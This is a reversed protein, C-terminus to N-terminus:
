VQTDPALFISTRSHGQGKSSLVARDEAREAGGRGARTHRHPHLRPSAVVLSARDRARHLIRTRTQHTCTRTQPQTAEPATRLLIKQSPLISTGRGKRGRSRPVCERGLAVLRCQYCVQPNDM